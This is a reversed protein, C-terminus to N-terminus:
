FVLYSVMYFIVFRSDVNIVVLEFIVFFVFCVFLFIVVYVYCNGFGLRSFNYGLVCLFCCVIVVVLM